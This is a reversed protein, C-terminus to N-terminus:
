SQQLFSGEQNKEFKLNSNSNGNKENTEFELLIEQCM